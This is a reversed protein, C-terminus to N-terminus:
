ICIKDSKILNPYIMCQHVRVLSIIKITIITVVNREFSVINTNIMMMM